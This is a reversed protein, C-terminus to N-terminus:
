HLLRGRHLVRRTTSGLFPVCYDMIYPSGHIGGRGTKHLVDHKLSGTWIFQLSAQGKSQRPVAVTATPRQVGLFFSAQPLMEQGLLQIM